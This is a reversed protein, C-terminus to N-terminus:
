KFLIFRGNGTMSVQLVHEELVLFVIFSECVQSRAGISGGPHRKWDRQYRECETPIGEPEDMCGAVDGDLFFM